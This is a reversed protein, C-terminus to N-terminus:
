ARAAQAVPRPAPERQMTHLRAYLGGKELLEGHSGQEVVRGDDVVYIVDADAVTSLRHAIVLTTRGAMLQKLAKQVQRESRTDLASTAEDLLLIPANKLMARAIAIRQRQGGSLKEGRGGVRTDYGQPLQEIFEHAAAMRAAEVIEKLSADPKGYGINAAVTDDFLGIEQSVLGIAGRLSAITVDRIDQGDITVRGHQVDYYRPIMNFITSKGAGSPGVLAATRGAPVRLSVGRLAIEQEGGYSFHVDDFVVEGRDVELARAGPKDVVTRETDLIDFLRQAAALGEQLAANLNALRKAPEYALLVAATFSFFAGPTRAGDIVQYGGYLLVAVIALGGVTELLPYNLSRVMAARYSLEFIRDILRRARSTEYAEMGYAKVHRAGAFTEDLQITFEGMEEQTNASVRRMKRGLRDLPVIAAPAVVTCILALIWDQYFMLAVLFALTMVDAGIGSLVSTVMKRMMNIDNNFRSILTGVPHRQLFAMDARILHDYLRTQMDALIRLGVYNMLMLQGFFAGGKVFFMVMILVAYFHLAAYGGEAGFTLFEALAPPLFDAAGSVDVGGGTEATSAGDVIPQILWALAATSVATLAMFVFGLIVRPIYPRVHEGLLRKVLHVTAQDLKVAPKKNKSLPSARFHCETDRVM